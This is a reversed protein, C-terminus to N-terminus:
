RDGGALVTLTHPRHEARQTEALAAVRKARDFGLGLATQVQRVPPEAPLEGSIILANLQEALQEDSLTRPSQKAASKRASPPVPVGKNPRAASRKAPSKGSDAAAAASVQQQTLDATFSGATPRAIIPLVRRGAPLVPWPTHAPPTTDAPPLSADREAAPTADLELHRRVTGPEPASAPAGLNLHMDALLPVPKGTGPTGDSGREHWPDADSISEDVVGILHATAAAGIPGIAHAVMSGLVAAALIWGAGPHQGAAGGILNLGISTALCSAAVRVAGEALRGGAAALRARAIIVWVVAGILVPELIWLAWWVPDAKTVRMLVAAGQQVGATSWAAFGILVPVLVKLNLVRLRELSLARAEGSRAMQSKIRIREGADRAERYMRALGADAHASAEREARALEALRVQQSLEARDREHEATSRDRALEDTRYAADVARRRELEPLLDEVTQPMGPLDSDTTNKWKM